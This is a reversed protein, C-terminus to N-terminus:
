PDAVTVDALDAVVVDAGHALLEDPHGRRDVGIVLAFGGRRAAEVGAQADEVVVTADPQTGLRRSAELFVAPDPKGPLGLEAAVVGDVRVPFLDALGAAALVALCNRSASIVATRMGLRQLRHVLAVTAPFAQVGDHELRERFYRDKRNGLGWITEADEGDSPGGEPLVIGRAALFDAVGDRRSKGDIHRRYDEDDFPSHDEGPRAPRRTLYDDFLQRWAAAHVSATDTVVGDLDFIVARHRAPDITATADQM